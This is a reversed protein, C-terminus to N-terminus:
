CGHKIVGTDDVVARRTVIACRGDAFGRIMNGGGVITRHTMDGAIKGGAHKIVGTHGTAAVTTMVPLEGDTLIRGGVVQGRGLITVEAM